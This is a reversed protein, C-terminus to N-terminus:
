RPPIVFAGFGDVVVRKRDLTRLTLTGTLPRAFSRSTLLVDRAARGRLNVVKLRRGNVEIAVRGFGPGRHLLVAFRSARRLPYSLTRGGQRTTLHRGYSSRADRVSSWGQGRRVPREDAMVAFERRAPSADVLGDPSVAAVRLVHTGPRLGTLTVRGGACPVGRDDIRCAFRSGPVSSAFRYTARTGVVFGRRPVGGTITTQPPTPDVGGQIVFDADNTDYFYNGVAQVLLRARSTNFRPLTVAESGDNPTSAALVFPFTGGGDLSLLIRVNPAYAAADTGAVDWEVTETANATAPAGVTERSTVAFPGVSPDLSLTVDDHGTGGGVTAGDRVTLRFNLEGSGLAYAPDPLFESYCDVAAGKGLPTLPDLGATPCAGEANSNDALVQALDPFSRAGVRTALNQGPSEYLLTAEDTVDAYTGFVRFLPGGLKLSTTLNDGNLPNLGIDNQEWLYTLGARDGPDADTATGALIFPTRVPISRDEGADVVPRRNGTTVFTGRNTIPGGNQTVGVFGTVGASFGGVTVRQPDAQDPWDLTFGTAGLTTAGDYGSVDVAKGTLTLLAAELGAVTYNTGNTITVPQKGPYGLQFSDTGDFGALNVVQQEALMSPTATTVATFEDITRQSFYPDTHPQLDDSGCIGAYAMVTSGSGPEVSTGYNRNTLMCSGNSGNFTHNGGMQHGVEHAFFDVAYFDGRPEDLATCGGAKLEGGVVGLYAVGGSGEGSGLHGIDFNDAGIIQGAVFNNRDIGDGGCSAIEAAAFCASAGCPGNTGTAKAVTDLNLRETGDVLVFKIAMDDMYIANTRNVVRVKEALVNATGFDAAYSPTTVFAMRYTRQVVAEGVRQEVAARPRVGAGAPTDVELEEFAPRASAPLDRRLFSLHTTVGRGHSAPDVYWSRAKVVSRVSASLGLPTVSFRISDTPDTVGRGAYTRLEPHRAQLGPEMVSDEAVDFVVTTGDPAPLSVRVPDSGSDVEDTTPAGTLARAVSDVEVRSGAYRRPLTAASRTADLRVGALPQALALVDDVVPAPAATPVTTPVALASPAPPASAPVAASAGTVAPLGAVLLAAVTSPLARRLAPLV